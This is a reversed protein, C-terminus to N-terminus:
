FRIVGSGGTFFGFVITLILGVWWFRPQPNNNMYENISDAVIYSNMMTKIRYVQEDDLNVLKSEDIESTLKINKSYSIEINDKKWSIDFTKNEENYNLIYGNLVQSEANITIESPILSNKEYKMIFENTGSEM